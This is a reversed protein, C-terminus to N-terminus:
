KVAISPENKVLSWQKEIPAGPAGTAEQPNYNVSAAGFSFSVSETPLDDGGSSGSWQVSDVFVMYFDYKLYPQGGGGAKRLVVHAKDYHGGNCCALFLDPSSKDTKKMINFSSISVKGGGAGGGGSGITSPNSAGVSFSEIEFAGKKSFEADTTEGAIKPAKGQNGELWMYADFAM